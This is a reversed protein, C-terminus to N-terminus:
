KSRVLKDEMKVLSAATLSVIEENSAFKMKIETLMEKTNQSVLEEVTNDYQVMEFILMCITEVVDPDDCHQRYSDAILTVGDSETYPLIIRFAALESVRVLSALALYANKIVGHKELHTRLADLLLLVTIEYQDETLCGQLSLAWLACCAPEVVEEDHLHSQIVSAIIRAADAGFAKKASAKNEVLSWLAGCCSICIDRNRSFTKLTRLLDSICGATQKMEAVGDNGSLIMLLRCCLSLLEENTSHSRMTELVADTVLDSFLTKDDVNHLLAQCALHQLVRCAKMELELCDVHTKMACIVSQTIDPIYSLADQGASLEDLYYLTLIQAEEIDRYTQMFELISEFNGEQPLEAHHPLKKKFGSLPSGCIVLCEKIYPIAVLEKATKRDNPNIKLMMRLVQCLDESYDTAQLTQLINELNHVDQRIKQLLLATEEQNMATCTMMELIICGLSWIDSKASFTFEMAEPAMCSKSGDKIRIKVKMEDNMEMQVRLDAIVFSFDETLVINTSKLNRYYIFYKYKNLFYFLLYFFYSRLM